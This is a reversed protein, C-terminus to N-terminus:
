SKRLYNCLLNSDNINIFKKTKKKIKLREFM